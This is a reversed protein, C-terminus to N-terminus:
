DLLPNYSVEGISQEYLPVQVEIYGSEVIMKAELERLSDSIPQYDICKRRFFYNKDPTMDPIAGNMINSPYISVGDVIVGIPLGVINCIDYFSRVPEVSHSINVQEIAINSPDYGGFTRVTSQLNPEEWGRETNYLGNAILNNDGNDLTRRYFRNMSNNNYNIILRTLSWSMGGIIDCCAVLLISPSQINRLSVWGSSTYISSDATLYM